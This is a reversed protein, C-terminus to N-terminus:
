CRLYVVAGSCARAAKMRIDRLTSCSGPTANSDCDWRLRAALMNEHRRMRTATGGCDRRLCTKTLLPLSQLVVAANVGTEDVLQLELLALM